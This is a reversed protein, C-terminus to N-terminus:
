PPDGSAVGAVVGAEGLQAVPQAPPRVAPRTLLQPRHELIQAAGARPQRTPTCASSMASASTSSAASHHDSRSAASSRRARASPMDSDSIPARSPKALLDAM